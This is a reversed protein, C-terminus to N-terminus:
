VSYIHWVLKDMDILRGNSSRGEYDKNQEQCRDNGLILM